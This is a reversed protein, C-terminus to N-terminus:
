KKTLSALRAARPAAFEQAISTNLRRQLMISCFLSSPKYKNIIFIEIPFIEKSAIFPVKSKKQFRFYDNIPSFLWQQTFFDNSPSFLQQQSFFTSHECPGLKDLFDVIVNFFEFVLAESQLGSLPPPPM